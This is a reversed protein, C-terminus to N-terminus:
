GLAANARQARTISRRRRLEDSKRVIPAAKSVTGHPEDNLVSNTPSLRPDAPKSQALAGVLGRASRGRNTLARHPGAGHEDSPTEYRLPTCM